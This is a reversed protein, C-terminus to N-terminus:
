CTKNKGDTTLFWPTPVVSDEPVFYESNPPGSIPEVTYM